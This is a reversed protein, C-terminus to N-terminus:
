PIETPNGRKMQVACRKEQVFSHWALLPLRTRRFHTQRGSADLDQDVCRIVQNRPSCLRARSIHLGHGVMVRWPTGMPLAAEGIGEAM